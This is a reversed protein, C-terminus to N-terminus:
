WGGQAGRSGLVKRSFPAKEHPYHAPKRRSGLMELGNLIM